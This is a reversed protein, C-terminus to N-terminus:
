TTMSYIFSANFKPSNLYNKDNKLLMTQSREDCCIDDHATWGMMILICIYTRVSVSHIEKAALLAGFSVPVAWTFASTDLAELRDYELVSASPSVTLYMTTPVVGVPRFRFASLPATTQVGAERSGTRITHTTGRKRTDPELHLVDLICGLAM